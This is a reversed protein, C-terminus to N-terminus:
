DAVLDRRLLEELLSTTTSAQTGRPVEVVVDPHCAAISRYGEAIAVTNQSDQEHTALFLFVVDADFGSWAMDM